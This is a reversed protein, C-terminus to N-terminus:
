LYNYGETLLEGPAIENPIKILVVFNYILIKILIM